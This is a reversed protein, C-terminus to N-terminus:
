TFSYQSNTITPPIYFQYPKRFPDMSMQALYAQYQEPTMFQPVTETPVYIYYSM